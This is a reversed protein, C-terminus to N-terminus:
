TPQGEENQQIREAACRAAEVLDGVLNMPHDKLWANIAEHDEETKAAVYAQVLRAYEQRLWLPHNEIDFSSREYLPLDGSKRRASRLAVAMRDCWVAMKERAAEVSDANLKTLHFEGTVKGTDTSVHLTLDQELMTRLRGVSHVINYTLSVRNEAYKLDKLELM